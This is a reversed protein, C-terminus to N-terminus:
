QTCYNTHAVTFRYRQYVGGSAPRGEKPQLEFTHRMAEMWRTYTACPSMMARPRRRSRNFQLIAEEPYLMDKYQTDRKRAFVVSIHLVQPILSTRRATKSKTYPVPM